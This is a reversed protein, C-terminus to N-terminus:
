RFAIGVVEVRGTLPKQKFVFSCDRRGRFSASYELTSGSSWHLKDIWTVGDSKPFVITPKGVRHGWLDLVEIDNNDTCGGAPAMHHLKVYSLYQGTTSVAALTLTGSWTTSIRSLRHGALSYGFITFQKEWTRDTSTMFYLAEHYEDWTMVGVDLSSTLDVWWNQQGRNIRIGNPDDTVTVEISGLRVPRRLSQAVCISTVFAASIALCGWMPAIILSWRIIM